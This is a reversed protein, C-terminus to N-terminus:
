QFKNAVKSQEIFFGALNYRAILLHKTNLTQEFADTNFVACATAFTPHDPM